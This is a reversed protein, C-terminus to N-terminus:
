EDAPANEFTQEESTEEKWEKETTDTITTIGTDSTTIETTTTETETRTGGDTPIETVETTVTITPQTEEVAVAPTILQATLLCLALTIALFRKTKTAM